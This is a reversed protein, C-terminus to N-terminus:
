LGLPNAYATFVADMKVAYDESTAEDKVVRATLIYTEEMLYPKINVDTVQFTLVDGIDNPIDTVSAVLVPDLTNTSIFIEVSQLFSFSSGPPTTITAQLSKLKVEEILDTNTNNASSNGALDSNIPPTSIEVPFDVGISAPITFSESYNIDFKIFKSCSSFGAWLIMVAIFPWRKKM